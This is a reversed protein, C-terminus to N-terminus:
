PTVQNSKLSNCYPHMLQANAATSPGGASVPHKHDYSISKLPFLLGSCYPCKPTTTLAERLYVQSKTQRSFRSQTPTKQIDLITGTFGVSAFLESTGFPKNQSLNTVLSNIMDRVKLVRADRNVNAFLQNIVAKNEILYDELARRVSTFRKFWGDDNNRVKDTIVKVMGLFLHRSHVGRENYFYVAPHLGLSPSDNGVIREAIEKALRLTNITDTGDSDDHETEINRSASQRSSAIALFDILMALGDVPSVSGGLPLDLTRIPQSQLEPDFLVSSFEAAHKEIKAQNADSFASWYKHGTGARLVARSAIAIAKRRNRLLMEEVDDLPTGQSNIKFFSVEAVEANGPVWQLDLARTVLNGVRRIQVLEINTAGVFAKLSTYRGVRREILNRARVAVERQHKPIDGGYFALSIAGDGYDDEMWARLASLRHGGDIIFIHVQARWLILSPILEGDLFSAIFTALQEPTWHNTERQFDPKRLLRRVNSSDELYALPFDRLPQQATDHDQIIGFDARPIMADLNVRAVMEEGRSRAPVGISDLGRRARPASM